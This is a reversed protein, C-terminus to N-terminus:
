HNNLLETTKEALSHEAVFKRFYNLAEIHQFRYGIAEYEEFNPLLKNFAKKNILNQRKEKELQYSL